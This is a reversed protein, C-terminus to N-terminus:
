GGEILITLALKKQLDRAICRPFFLGECIAIVMYFYLEPGLVSVKCMTQWQQEESIATGM